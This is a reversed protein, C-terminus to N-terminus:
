QIYYISLQAHKVHKLANKNAINDYRGIVIWRENKARLPTIYLTIDEGKYKPYVTFDHM